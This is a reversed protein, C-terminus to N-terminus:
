GENKEYAAQYSGQKIQTAKGTNISHTIINTRSLDELGQTFMEIEILLFTQAELQQSLTLEDNGDSFGNNVNVRSLLKKFKTSYTDLTESEKQRLEYLEIQWRHQREEPTFQ